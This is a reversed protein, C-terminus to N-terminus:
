ALKSRTSIQLALGISAVSVLLSSGGHSIFPLPVGTLPLLGVIAGINFFSQVAFLTAIGCLVLRDYEDPVKEALRLLRRIFCYLAILFLASVVFGTEEAIIAFISDAHVEPLYQM